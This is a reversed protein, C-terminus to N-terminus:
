STGEETWGGTPDFVVAPHTETLDLTRLKKVADLIGSYSRLIEVRREPSLDVGLVDRYLDPTGDQAVAAGPREAPPRLLMASVATDFPGAAAGRRPMAAVFPQLQAKAVTYVRRLEAVPDVHEDVRLDLWAYDELHHVRLAASQKGRKDGGAAQGAELARLLREALEFSTSAHFSELMADLTAPGLLMNGQVAVGAALIQGCWPTCDEGTFAASRGAADVMGIQRQQRGDDAAVVARLAETATKGDAMLALADIALYPNVWAQTSVAGVRSHIYPCLAGVAPVATSVAVGLMGTAPCRAVISFTNLQIM